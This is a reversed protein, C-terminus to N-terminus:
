EIAQAMEFKVYLDSLFPIDLSIFPAEAQALTAGLKSKHEM